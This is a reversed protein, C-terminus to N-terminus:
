LVEIVIGLVPLATLSEAICCVSCKYWVVAFSNFGRRKSNVPLNRPSLVLSTQVPSLPPGSCCSSWCSWPCTFAPCVPLATRGEASCGSQLSARLQESCLSLMLPLPGHLICVRGAASPCPCILQFVFFYFFFFSFFHQYGTGQKEGFCVLSKLHQCTM